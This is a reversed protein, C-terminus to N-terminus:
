RVGFCLPSRDTERASKLHNYKFSGNCAFFSEKLIMTSVNECNLFVASSAISEYLVVDVYVCLWNM